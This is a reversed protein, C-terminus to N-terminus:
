HGFSSGPSFGTAPPTSSPTTPPTVPPINQPPANILKLQLAFEYLSFSICEGDEAIGMVSSFLWDVGDGGGDGEGEGLAKATLLTSVYTKFKELEWGSEKLNNLDVKVARPVGVVLTGENCWLGWYSCGLIKISTSKEQSGLKAWLEEAIKKTLPDKLLQQIDKKHQVFLVQEEKQGFVILHPPKEANKWYSVLEKFATTANIFCRGKQTKEAWKSWGYIPFKGRETPIKTEDSKFEIVLWKKIGSFNILVDGAGEATDDLPAAFMRPEYYKRVFIWEVTKEWFLLKDKSSEIMGIDKQKIHALAAAVNKLAANKDLVM